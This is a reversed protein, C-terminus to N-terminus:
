NTIVNWDWIGAVSGRVALQFREESQLLERKAQKRESIDRIASVRVPRGGWLLTKARVESEFVTGDKRLGLPEYPGEQGSRMAEQVLLRSEPAIMLLVDQGLMEQRSYGLLRVLQDNVDIIKGGESIGIG